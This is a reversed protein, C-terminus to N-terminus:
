QPEFTVVNIDISNSTGGVIRRYRVLRGTADDFKANLYVSYGEPAGLMAPKEALGLEQEMILFLGNMTYDQGANPLIVLNNRRLSTIQGRVVGVDFRGSEIRDGSMEVILRYANPQHQKWKSEAETLRETTLPPLRFCAPFFCLMAAITLTRKVNMFKRYVIRTACHHAPASFYLRISPPLLMELIALAAFFFPFVFLFDALTEALGFAADRAEFDALFIVLFDDRGAARLAATGL